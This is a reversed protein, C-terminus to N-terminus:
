KNMEFIKITESPEMELDLVQKVPNMIQNTIYLEYDLDKKEKRIFDIHEIRDGQLVKRERPKGKRIGSKYPNEEDYLQDKPLQIYAYPIRDNAKPKNGPDREAMRDALVKHAIQQPNKYYGRLSKTIIFNTDSFGGQRIKELTDKLWQVTADFDKDIMIKEIVHGFVYKVIPANDRRKLVIGMATRKCDETSYEYKDGTYRKKSILIFPWFTKEYELDQPSYLLPSHQIIEGNKILKGKTIYDGAEKGCQICHKLAEKGELLKGEKKRSFKVFVSDTNKVILEFGTNFNGQVTEIDYVFEDEIDKLIEIKKIEEKEKRLRSSCTIKFIDPKDKRSNISVESGLSKALYYLMASGIKGKNTLIINKSKSNKCKYGDALYYGCFFSYREKYSGNLISEPVIKYKDKNYFQHRYEDVYKKIKKYPVIKHVGSSHLTDLIKFEDEYVEMLLSQLISCTEIDQQNLAWTYKEKYKGCSGDGYFFGYLFSKKEQYDKTEITDIFSLIDNLHINRKEFEPYHHLLKMGNNVETPKLLNGREDLLSHDETVDSVSTHTTIRYIRKKTKHRIVRRIPSWGRSTMIEYNTLLAQQKEKRNSDESKFQEYSTYLESLDDIQKFCISDTNRDRLLLPTNSLVSDGYVVDPEEHGAEKAWKKVGKSADDIRERGISTTCAAINMKFITSTTAGLQGYVSNATVKYALQLGDLVKKKFEDKEDNMRRKTDKRAALLHDLVQPIIGKSGIGKEEM